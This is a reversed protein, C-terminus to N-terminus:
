EKEKQNRPSSPKRRSEQTTQERQKEGNTGPKDLLLCVRPQNVYSCCNHQPNKFVHAAQARSRCVCVRVMRLLIYPRAQPPQTHFQTNEGQQGHGQKSRTRSRALTIRMMKGMTEQFCAHLVMFPLCAPTALTEDEPVSARPCTM